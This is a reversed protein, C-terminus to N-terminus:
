SCTMSHFCFIWVLSKTRYNSLCHTMYFLFLSHNRHKDCQLLFTIDFVQCTASFLFYFPSAPAGNPHTPIHLDLSIMWEFRLKLVMQWSIPTKFFHEHVSSLCRILGPLINSVFQSSGFRSSINSSKKHSWILIFGGPYQV